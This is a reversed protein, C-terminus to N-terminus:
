PSNEKRSRQPPIRPGDLQATGEEYRARANKERAATLKSYDRFVSVDTWNGWAMAVEPDIALLAMWEAFTHRLHHFTPVEGRLLMGSRKAARVMWKGMTSDSVPRTPDRLSPFLFRAGRAEAAGVRRELIKRCLQDIPFVHDKGNKTREGPICVEDTAFRVEAIELERVESKRMGGARAALLAMDALDPHAHRLFALLHEHNDFAGKRHGVEDHSWVPWGQLPNRSVEEQELQWSFMGGFASRVRNAYGKSVTRGMPKGNRRRVESAMMARWWVRGLKTTLEDWPMEGLCLSQAEYEFRFVLIWYRASRLWKPAVKFSAQYEDWLSGVTRAKPKPPTVTATTLREILQQQQQLQAMLMQQQRMMQAMLGATIPVAAPEPEAPTVLAAVAASSM